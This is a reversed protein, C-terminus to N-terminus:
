FALKLFFTLNISLSKKHYFPSLFNLWFTSFRKQLSPVALSDMRSGDGDEPKLGTQSPVGTNQTQEGKKKLPNHQPFAM